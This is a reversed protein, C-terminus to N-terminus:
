PKGGRKLVLISAQNDPNSAVEKPRAAEGGGGKVFCCTLEDGVLTYIGCVIETGGDPLLFDITPPKATPNVRYLAKEGKNRDTDLLTLRDGEFVAVTPPSRVEEGARLHRVL